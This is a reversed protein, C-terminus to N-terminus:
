GHAVEKMEFNWINLNGSIEIPEIPEPNELLWAFRGPSFDGFAREKASIKYRLGLDYISFCDILNVKGIIAGLKLKSRDPIAKKFHPDLQCLELNLGAFSKSAHIYLEGRYHTQWGRTEFQKEGAIVLNAWPQQLSLVKVKAM